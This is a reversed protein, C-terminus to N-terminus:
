TRRGSAGGRAARSGGASANTCGAARSTPWRAIAPTRTSFRPPVRGRHLGRGLRVAQRCRESLLRQRRDRRGSRARRGSALASVRGGEDTVAVYDAQVDAFFQDGDDPLVHETAVFPWGAAPAWAAFGVESLPAGPRDLPVGSRSSRTMAPGARSGRRSRLTSSRWRPSPRSSADHSRPSSSEWSSARSGTDASPSRSRRRGTRLRDRRDASGGPARRARCSGRVGAASLGPAGRRLAGAGGRLEDPSAAM